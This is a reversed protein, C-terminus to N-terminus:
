WLVVVRVIQEALEARAPRTRTWRARSTLYDLASGGILVLGAFGTVASLM